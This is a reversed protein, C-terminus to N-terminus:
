LKSKEGLYQSFRLLYGDPDQVLFERQGSLKDGIDYWTESLERFLAVQAAKLRSYVSGIDSLEMQFNVGRGFPSDLSGTIWANQHIQEIMIQVRELELYAFDPNERRNRVKFGLLDRYFSLSNNFHSVSLEPVMPNWYEEM